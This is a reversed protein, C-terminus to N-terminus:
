MRFTHSYKLFFSRSTSFPLRPEDVHPLRDTPLGEDYVLWLDTGEAFNYRARLNVNVRQTTSNYQVFTNASARANLTTGIRLRALHISESQDRDAFRLLSLQYLGGLELHPSANWTPTLVVQARRGDFYSGARFDMSTRLRRGSPMSLAIQLDAFTYDGAPITVNRGITFPTLVSEHFVKPEVWGGGGAKTEWQLWIAYQSSELKGDANRFTSFALAGPLIRRYRSADSAFRFWNGVINATTYDRRQLFGLEPDFDRGSRTLTATYQLGREVRREWQAHFHSQEGFRTLPREGESVTGAWKVTLYNDGGMRLSADAGLAVNDTIGGTRSTLIFGATSYANLVPHRMRLVGFTEGPIGSLNDTRMGLVGVDWGGMRGVLRVGGVVPVPTGAATLGIQRSHFLRSSGGLNFDFVGSGEQFFRRKEPFFLSFRDLNVQQDDAEVQAFDTNTTVDLTLNSTLAYRVDLGVERSRDRDLEYSLADPALRASRSLGTLAYPTVYLPRGTSVGTLV